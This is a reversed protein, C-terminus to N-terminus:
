RISDLFPAVIERLQEFEILFADHGHRSKIEAYTAGPIQRAIEKQEDAPYLLDSDIGICLARAKVSSLVEPAHGRDRAVDHLDIARTITLFANADFRSVLKEGQYNLYGAAQFLNAEIFLDGNQQLRDRGFREQFSIASRYSVMGIQRALSLGNVPQQRYDGNKWEPDNKIAQRALHNLGIAWASHQVSTAIPILSSVMEPHMIAWELAQMGGLSGGTVTLLRKVDLKRILAYQLNVMDRVTVPPFSAGYTQGTDPNISVPGTTGYCSGLINSCVVFYRNTDFAKGPGIASDWWGPQGSKMSRYFPIAELVEASYLGEGAAHADGSLAHCILIANDGAANLEGYAEYAIQIDKLNHGCELLFRDGTKFPIVIRTLAQINKM